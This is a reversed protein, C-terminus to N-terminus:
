VLDTCVHMRKIHMNSVILEFVLTERMKKVPEPSTSLLVIPWSAVFIWIAFFPLFNGELFDAPPPHAYFNPNTKPKCETQKLGSGTEWM